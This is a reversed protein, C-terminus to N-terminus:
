AGLYARIVRPDGATEEPTGTMLVKGQDLVIVRDTAEM